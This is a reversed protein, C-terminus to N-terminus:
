IDASGRFVGPKRRTWECGSYDVMSPHRRGQRTAEREPNRVTIIEPGTNTRRVFRPHKVTNRLYDIARSKARRLLWSANKTGDNALAIEAKMVAMLDEWWFKEVGLKRVTQMLLGNGITPLTDESALYSATEKRRIHSGVLIAIEAVKVQHITAVQQHEFPQPM